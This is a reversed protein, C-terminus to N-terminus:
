HKAKRPEPSDNVPVEIRRSGAAASLRSLKRPSPDPWNSVRPLIARKSWELSRMLWREPATRAWGLRIRQAEDLQRWIDGGTKSGEHIRFRVLPEQMRDVRTGRLLRLYFDYDAADAYSEDLEPARELLERRFIISPTPVYEGQYLYRRWSFRAPVYSRIPAGDADTVHLGGYVAMTEPHADLHALARDVAESVYADDGNLWGIVEGRARELGKNVAHTQGRDPESHWTLSPDSRSALLEVTGDDSAGDVVVHEHEAQLAQISDLTDEIYAAQNRVPTIVSFLTV